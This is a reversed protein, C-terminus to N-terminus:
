SNEDAWTSADAMSEGEELLDRIITRTRPTLRTEALRTAARHGMRGWGLAPRGTGLILASAALFAVFQVRFPSRAPGRRFPGREHAPRVHDRKFDMGWEIRMEGRERLLAYTTRPTRVPHRRPRDGAGPSALPGPRM